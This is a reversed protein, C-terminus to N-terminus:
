NARQYSSQLRDAQRLRKVAARIVSGPLMAGFRLMMTMDPTLFRETEALGAGFRPTENAAANTAVCAIVLSYVGDPHPYRALKCSLVSLGARNMLYSMSSPTFFNIHTVPEKPLPPRRWIEMPVEAYFIGGKRVRDALRRLVHFPDALHELVHSCVIVDYAGEWPIDSETSGIRNVGPIPMECYDILHCEAGREVFPQLLRGDAGGFDLVRGVQMDPIHKKVIQYLRRARRKERGSDYRTAPQNSGISQLFRYKRDIDDVTPRPAYSVFGCARCVQSSITLHAADKCWLEFM